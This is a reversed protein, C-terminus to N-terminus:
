QRSLSESFFNKSVICITSKRKRKRWEDGFRWKIDLKKIKSSSNLAKIIQWVVFVWNFAVCLESFFWCKRQVQIIIKKVWFYNRITSLYGYMFCFSSSFLLQDAISLIQVPLPNLWSNRFQSNCMACRVESRTKWLM